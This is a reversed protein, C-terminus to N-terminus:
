PKELLFYVINRDDSNKGFKIWLYSRYSDAFWSPADITMTVYIRYFSLNNKLLNNMFFFASSLEWTGGIMSFGNTANSISLMSRTDVLLDDYSYFVSNIKIKHNQALNIIDFITYKSLGDDKNITFVTLSRNSDPAHDAMFKVAEYIADLRSSTGGTLHTLDLLSRAITENWVPTFQNHYFTLPSKEIRGNRAFAALIVNGQYRINKLFANYNEFRYNYPDRNKYTNGAESQDVLMCNFYTPAGLTDYFEIRSIKHKVRCNNFDYDDFRFCSDPLGVFLTTSDVTKAGKIVAVDLIFDIKRLQYDMVKVGLLVSVNEHFPLEPEPIEEKCSFFFFIMLILPSFTQLLFYKKIM